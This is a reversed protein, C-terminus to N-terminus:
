KRLRLRYVGIAARMEGARYLAEMGEGFYADVRRPGTIAGGADHVFVLRAARPATSGQEQDTTVLISGAPYVSQDAACSYGAVLKGGQLGVTPPFLDARTSAFFVVRENDLLAEHAIAPNSTAERIVDNLTYTKADLLGRSALASGLSTWARGNTAVRSIRAERKGESTEILLHATGNTEVLALSLPDRVWAIVDTRAAPLAMLERRPLAAFESHNVRVDGFIPYNFDPDEQVRADVVVTAYGTMLPAGATQADLPVCEVLEFRAQIEQAFEEATTSSKYIELLAASEALASADSSKASVDCAMLFAVRRAFDNKPYAAAIDVESWPRTVFTTTAVGQEHTPPHLSPEYTHPTTCSALALAFVTAASV